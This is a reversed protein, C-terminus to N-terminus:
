EYATYASFHRKWDGDATGPTEWIFDNTDIGKMKIENSKLITLRHMGSQIVIFEAYYVASGEIEEIFLFPEKDTIKIDKYSLSDCKVKYLRITKYLTSFPENCIISLSNKTSASINWQLFLSSQNKILLTMADGYKPKQPRITHLNESQHQVM